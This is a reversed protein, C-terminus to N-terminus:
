STVALVPFRFIFVNMNHQQTVSLSGRHLDALSRSISLGIGTGKQKENEKLRVFPVFIKERMNEPILLGDNSVELQLMSGNDTEKLEALVTADAYKLANSFLNSFIKNIGEEDAYAYLEKEPMRLRFHLKKQQAPLKFNDYTDQLIASINLHMFHLRFGTSETQRFDLLQNTLQVLRNTNREMILLNHHNARINEPHEIVQELPGKILTLPTNIEHAVNTLFDIKAQYLEKEKKHQLEELKRKHKLNQRHHYQSIFYYLLNIGVLFYLLYAWSTAWFPPEIVIELAAHQPALRGNNDTTTVMFTYQGPKLDTFYALRNTKLYTWERDLGEMKYAYSIMDPATFSLASFDISFSSQYHPLTIKRTFLIAKKHNLSTEGDQLHFGTIYIPATFTDKMFRDPYFSIMGKVSGFYMKGKKDKYGSNYNFQDNLLGNISTYVQMEGTSPTLCALGRSTTIWMRNSNDQLIKFVYGSPLGHQTGYHTFCNTRRNLMSLGAGESGAWINQRSDVMLTNITNSILSCPDKEDHQYHGKLGTRTNYYFIGQGATGVWITGEGDEVISRINSYPVEEVKVFNTRTTDYRALERGTGALLQGTRTKHFTLIFNDRFTEPSASYHRIVKGTRIDMQDMGNDLTGIWLNNGEAYLGHINTHSISRGKQSPTYQTIKGTAPDLKNIGNDETGIWVNGYMDECIERVANGSISNSSNDPFHKEFYTYQRPYYNVGGFYTGAWMGGEKDKELFYIANDSLSYPNNYQKRLNIYRRTALNYIYIGSETAIWYEDGNYHHIDRVYVPLEDPNYCLLDEYQGTGTHLLKLGQNATGVLLSGGATEMIRCIHRSLSRPSRNFLDFKKEPHQFSSVTGQYNALWLTGDKARHMDTIGDLGGAKEYQITTDRLPDYQMVRGGFIYWVHGATDCHLAGINGHGSSEVRKFSETVAIYRYLGDGTGVWIQGNPDECLNFVFNHGISTSDGPIHRFIKFINGDFRNLGDKTGIWVFGRRDQLVSFVTNHSLGDEVQYHRFYYQQATGGGASLVFLLLLIHFKYKLPLQKRAKDM